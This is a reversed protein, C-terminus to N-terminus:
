RGRRRRPRPTNYCGPPPNMGQARVAWPDARLGRRVGRDGWSSAAYGPSAAPHHGGGRRERGNAGRRNDRRAGTRRDRCGYHRAARGSRRPQGSRPQPGRAPVGNQQLLATLEQNDQTATWAGLGRDLEGRNHWRSLSDAFREERAWEPDGMAEVLRRWEADDRVAIAIWKDNGRCPYAGHPAYCPHDNGARVQVRGNAIYDMLADAVTSVGVEYQSLDIWQGKGTTRRYELAAMIATAGLLASPLDTYAVPSRMPPGDAYGTLHSVGSMQELGWGYAIYNQWPGSHGFGTSSLMIIDPKVDRLAAYDLGFNAMVRPSFNEAVVDSIKVLERFLEAGRPRGLDLTVGLKNPNSAQYWSPEDWYRPGLRNYPYAGTRSTDLRSCSEVKVVEAGFDALLKTACPVAWAIGAEIIRVGELALRGM